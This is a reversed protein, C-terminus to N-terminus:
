TRKITAPLTVDGHCHERRTFRYGAAPSDSSTYNRIKIHQQGHM